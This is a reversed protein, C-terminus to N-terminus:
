NLSLHLSKPLRYGLISAGKYSCFPEFDKRLRLKLTICCARCLIGFLPSSVTSVRVEGNYISWKAVMSGLSGFVALSPSTVFGMVSACLRFAGSAQRKISFKALSDPATPCLLIGLFLNDWRNCLIIGIKHKPIFLPHQIKSQSFDPCSM